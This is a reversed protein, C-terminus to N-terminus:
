PKFFGFDIPTPLNDQPELKLKKRLKQGLKGYQGFREYLYRQAHLDIIGSPGTLTTAGKARSFALLVKPLDGSWKLKAVGEQIKDNFTDPLGKKVYGCYLLQDSDLSYRAPLDQFFEHIYKVLHTAVAEKGAGEIGASHRGPVMRVRKTSPLTLLPLSTTIDDNGAYIEIGTIGNLREITEQLRAGQLAEYNRKTYQSSIALDRTARGDLILSLEKAFYSFDQQNNVKSFPFRFKPILQILGRLIMIWPRKILAEQYAEALNAGGHASIVLAYKEIFGQPIKNLHYEGPPEALTTPDAQLLFGGVVAAGQSIGIINLHVNQGRIEAIKNIQKALAASKNSLDSDINDRKGWVWNKFNLNADNQFLGAIEPAQLAENFPRTDLESYYKNLIEAVPSFDFVRNYIASLQLPEQCAESYSFLYINDIDYGLKYAVAYAERAATQWSSTFGTVFIVLKNQLEDPETLQIRNGLGSLGYRPFEQEYYDPGFHLYNLLMKVQATTAYHGEGNLALEIDSLQQGYLRLKDEDIIPNPIFGLINDQDKVTKDFEAELLRKLTQLHNCYRECIIQRAEDYSTAHMIDLFLNQAFSRGPLAAEAVDMIGMAALFGYTLKLISETGLLRELPEQGPRFGFHEIVGLIEADSAFSFSHHEPPFDAFSICNNNCETM